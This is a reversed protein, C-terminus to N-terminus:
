SMLPFFLVSILPSFVVNILFSFLVNNLSARYLNNKLTVFLNLTFKIGFHKGKKCLGLNTMRRFAQYLPFCIKKPHNTTVVLRLPINQINHPRHLFCQLHSLGVCVGQPLLSRSIFHYMLYRREREREKVFGKPYYAALFSIICSIVSSEPTAYM